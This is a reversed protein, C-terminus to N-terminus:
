WHTWPKEDLLKKVRQIYALAQDDQWEGSYHWGVCGSLDGAAYGNDGASAGRTTETLYTVWGEFCGRLVALSYDVNFATYQQSDPWSGPRTTHKLQLLGFSTPCPVTYGGVCLAPDNVYDSIKDQRWSSEAVAMARVVDTNIGWKCAGWVIIQDTTGTYQGDIRPVFLRNASPDWFDPWPPLRLDRPVSRNADSNEPVAERDSGVGDAYAACYQASPLGSGVPLTGGASNIDVAPTDAIGPAPGDTAIVTGLLIAVGAAALGVVWLLRFRHNALQSM